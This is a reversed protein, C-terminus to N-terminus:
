PCCFSFNGAFGVPDADDSTTSSGTFDIYGGLLIRCGAEGSKRNQILLFIGSSYKTLSVPDRHDEVDLDLSADFIQTGSGEKPIVASNEQM